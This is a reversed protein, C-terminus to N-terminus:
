GQPQLDTASELIESMHQPLVRNYGRCRTANFAGSRTSKNRVATKKRSDHHSNITTLEQKEERYGITTFVIGMGIDRRGYIVTGFAVIEKVGYALKM